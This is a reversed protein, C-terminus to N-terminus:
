YKMDPFQIADLIGKSNDKVLIFKNYSSSELPSAGKGNILDKIRDSRTRSCETIVEFQNFFYLKGLYHYRFMKIETFTFIPPTFILKSAIDDTSEKLLEHYAKIVANEFKIKSLYTKHHVKNLFGYLM